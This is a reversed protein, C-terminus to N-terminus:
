KVDRENCYDLAAKRAAKMATEIAAKEMEAKEREKLQM